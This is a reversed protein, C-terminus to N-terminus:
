WNGRYFYLLTWESEVVETWSIPLNDSTRVSDPLNPVQGFAVATLLMYYGIVTGTLIKSLYKM